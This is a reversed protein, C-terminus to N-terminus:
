YRTRLTGLWAPLTFTCLEFRNPPAEAFEGTKYFDALFADIPASFTGLRQSRAPEPLADAAQIQQSLGPLSRTAAAASRVGNRYASASQSIERLQAASFGPDTAPRVCLGAGRTPVELPPDVPPQKTPPTTGPTPPADAPPADVPPPTRPKPPKPPKPDVKTPPAPPAPPPPQKDCRKLLSEIRYLERSVSDRQADLEELEQVVGEIIGLDQGFKEAALGAEIFSKLSSLQWSGLKAVIAGVGGAVIKGALLDKIANGTDWLTQVAEITQLSKGVSIGNKVATAESGTLTAAIVEATKVALEQTTDKIERAARDFESDGLIQQMHKVIKKEEAKLHDVKNTLAQRVEDDCPVIEIDVPHGLLQGCRTKAHLTTRGENVAQLGVSGRNNQVNALAGNGLTFSIMDSADASELDYPFTYVKHNPKGDIGILGLKPLPAGGNISNLKLSAAPLEASASRGDVEYEARIKGKGPTVASVNAALGLSQVSLASGPEAWFRLVGGKPEVAASLKTTQGVPLAACGDLTLSPDSANRKYSLVLEGSELPSSMCIGPGTLATGSITYRKEFGDQLDKRTLRLPPSLLTGLVPQLEVITPLTLNAAGAGAYHCAGVDDVSFWFGPSHQMPDQKLAIVGRIKRAGGGLHARLTVKGEGDKCVIPTADIQAPPDIRGEELTTDFAGYSILMDAISSGESPLEGRWKVSWQGGSCGDSPYAAGSLRLDVKITDADAAAAAAAWSLLGIAAAQRPKM